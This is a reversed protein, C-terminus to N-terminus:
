LLFDATDVAPGGQLELVWDAMGDGNQDGILLGSPAFYYFSAAGGGVLGDTGNFTTSLASLDISDVGSTFDTIVDRGAGLGIAVSSAFVFVDAGPGGSIVDKGTGGNVTDDGLGGFIVNAGASGFIADNGAGGGINDDGLGGFITDAGDLGRLIDNGAGGGIFDIDNAGQIFDSGDNGFLQNQGASGYITDSGTGGQVTDNGFGAFITNAGASGFIADNGAGGGINDNGLGGYITDFGDDGRLIDNGAGGGIFDNDAGGLITDNGANGLISDNGGLAEILDDSDTGILTDNGTSGGPTDNGGGGLPTDDGPLIFENVEGDLIFATNNDTKIAVGVGWNYAGEFTDILTGDNAYEKLRGEQLAPPTFTLVSYGIIFGNETAILVPTDQRDNTVTNVLTSGVAVSGDSNFIKFWVSTESTDEPQTAADVWVVVVRGDSLTEAQVSPSKGFGQGVADSVMFTSVAETGDANFIQAFTGGAEGSSSDVWTYFYKDGAVALDIGHGQVATQGIGGLQDFTTVTNGMADVILGTLSSFPIVFINGDPLDVAYELMSRNTVGFAGSTLQTAPATETGTSDLTVVWNTVNTPLPDADRVQYYINMTGNGNDHVFYADLRGFGLGTGDAFETAAFVQGDDNFAAVQPGSVVVGMDGVRYIGGGGITTDTGGIGVSYSPLDFAITM